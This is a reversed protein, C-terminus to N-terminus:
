KRGGSSATRQQKGFKKKEEEMRQGLEELQTEDMFQEVQPFMENEEEEVHHEVNEKMVKLKADFKESGDSLNSIERLLTKVQKHEEFAELVLDNLEEQEQLAPYFIAEEIHTHTELETKIQEFLQQKKKENETGEAQEFLQSVKQHDEMLLDLANM